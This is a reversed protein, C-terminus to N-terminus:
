LCLFALFGTQLRRNCSRRSVYQIEALQGLVSSSVPGGFNTTHQQKMTSLFVIYQKYCYASYLLLTIISLAFFYRDWEEANPKSHKCVLLKFNMYIINLFKLEYRESFM